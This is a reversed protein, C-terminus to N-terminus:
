DQDPLPCSSKGANVMDDLSTIDHEINDTERATENSSAATEESSAANNQVVLDMQHVAQSISDLGVAQEKSAESIEAILHKVQEITSQVEAYAISTEQMLTGGENIRTVSTEIMGTTNRAAEASRQSLSRVEDAVVAFGAGADGARAAEVAANLSLLNTQFAIEDITKIIKKTEQSAHTIENMAAVLQGMKEDALRMLEDARLMLKNASLANDANQRTMGTLEELAASTEELSAAQESTASALAQSASNVQAAALRVQRVSAGLSCVLSRLPRVIRSIVLAFILIALLLIGGSVALLLTRVKRIATEYVAAPQGAAVRWDMVNVPAYGGLITYGRYVYSGFGTEGRLVPGSTEKVGEEKSVDLVTITDPQSSILVIGKSNCMTVRFYREKWAAQFAAIHQNIDATLSLVAAVENNHLIPASVTIVPLKGTGYLVTDAAAPQKKDTISKIIEQSILVREPDGFSAGNRLSGAALEGGPSVLAIALYNTSLGALLTRMEALTEAPVPKGGALAAASRAFPSTAALASVLRLEQTYYDRLSSAYSKATTVAGNESIFSLIASTGALAVISLAVLPIIVLTLGTVLIKRGITLTRM